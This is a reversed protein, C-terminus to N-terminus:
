YIHKDDGKITFKLNKNEDVEIINLSTGKYIPISSFDELGIGEIISIMVKITVGHTVVLINEGESNIIKELARQSREFINKFPEGGNVPVYKHSEYIYTNYEEGYKEIIDDIHMGEWIGYSLEKLEDLEIHEIESDGKIIQATDVARKQNSSYIKDLKIEEEKFREKLNKAAQIGEETLESNKWGQLKKLSNWETKGHRILYIKM